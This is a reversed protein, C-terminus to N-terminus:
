EPLLFEKLASGALKLLVPHRILEKVLSSHREFDAVSEIVDKNEKFIKMVKILNKESMNEYIKRIKLGIRIERGFKENWEKQYCTLDKLNRVALESAKMSYFIGGGTLPKMQCAADGILAIKERAINGYGLSIIGAQEELIEGKVEKRELFGRLEHLANPGIFGIRTTEETEPICWFFFPPKMYVDVLDDEPPLHVIFQAGPYFRPKLSFKGIRRVLSFPGDCGLLVDCTYVDKTTTVQLSETFTEVKEKTHIDLGASFHRDLKARNVVYAAKAREIEFSENGFHFRAGDIRRVIVDQPFPIESTKVIERGVLGACQVPKGIESHEEFILPNFGRKKLLQGIYCGAIGGGAIIIDM